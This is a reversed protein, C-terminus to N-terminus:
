IHSIKSKQKGGVRRYGFILDIDNQVTFDVPSPTSFSAVVNV